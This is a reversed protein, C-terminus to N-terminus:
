PRPGKRHALQLVKPNIRIGSRAISDLNVQLTVGDGLVELCFMSGAACLEDGGSITLVPRGVVQALVQKRPMLPMAGLYLIDCNASWQDSEVALVRVSAPHGGFGRLKDTLSGTEARDDTVCLRYVEPQVPWRAYSVIGMVTRAVVTPADKDAAPEQAYARWALLLGAAM